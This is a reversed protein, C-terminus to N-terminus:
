RPDGNHLEGHRQPCGRRKQDGSEPGRAQEMSLGRITVHLFDEILIAEEARSVFVQRDKLKIPHRRKLVGPFSGDLLLTWNQQEDDRVTVPVQQGAMASPIRGEQSRTREGIWGDDLLQLREEHGGPVSGINRIHGGIHLCDEGPGFQRFVGLPQVEEYEHEVLLASHDVAEVSQRTSGASQAPM